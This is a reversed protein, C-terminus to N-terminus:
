LPLMNVRIATYCSPSPSVVGRSPRLRLLPTHEPLFTTLSDDSERYTQEVTPLWLM